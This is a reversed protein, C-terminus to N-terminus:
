WNPGESSLFGVKIYRLGLGVGANDHFRYSFVSVGVKVLFPEFMWSDSKNLAEKQRFRHLFDEMVSENAVIEPKYNSKATYWGKESPLIQDFPAPRYQPDVFDAKFAISYREQNRWVQPTYINCYALEEGPMEIEYSLNREGPLTTQHILVFNRDAM